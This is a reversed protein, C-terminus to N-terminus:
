IWWGSKSGQAKVPNGRRIALDNNGMGFAISKNIFIQRRFHDFIEVLLLVYLSGEGFDDAAIVLFFRTMKGNGFDAQLVHDIGEAAHLVMNGHGIAKPCGVPRFQKFALRV